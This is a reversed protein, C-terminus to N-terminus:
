IKTIATENPLQTPVTNWRKAFKNEVWVLVDPIARHMFVVFPSKIPRVGM